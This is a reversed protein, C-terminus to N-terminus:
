AVAGHCKKYKKGSGCPCPDNRGVKPMGLAPIIRKNKDFEQVFDIRSHSPYRFSFCTEGGHNTISLDGGRIIDMGIIAGFSGDNEPHETVLVGLIAVRNPLFFHVVHTKHESKGGGHQVLRKGTSVLGMAKATADTIISHTAGTDWLAKTDYFEINPPQNKPDFAVSLKVDTVIRNALFGHHQQTFARCEQFM